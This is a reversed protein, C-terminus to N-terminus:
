YLGELGLFSTGTVICSSAFKSYRPLNRYGRNEEGDTTLFLDGNNICADTIHADTLLLPIINSVVLDSPRRPM